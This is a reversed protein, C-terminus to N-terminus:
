WKLGENRYALRLRPNGHCYVTCIHGDDGNSFKLDLEDGQAIRTIKVVDNKRLDDGSIKCDYRAVAYTSSIILKQIVAKTINVM